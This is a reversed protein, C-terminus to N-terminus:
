RAGRLRRSVWELLLSAVVVAFLISTVRSADRSPQSARDLPTAPGLADYLSALPVEDTEVTALRPALPTYAVSAVVRSWWDRHARAAEDGGSMRWRWTEDYGVQVVRGAEVRRAAAVTAEDRIELAVADARLSAVAFAGLGTRPNDSAVAGAVGAVRRGVGGPAISALAAGRVANGALVVGGGSRAYRAIAGGATSAASDLAVVASYRLTDIAGLEGQTVDVNPAVRLRAAVHWGSEELAAITFKAEWGAEALVLVPRLTASDTPATVAVFNSGRAHVVGSVAGLEVEAAGGAPLSDILGAADSLVVPERAGSAFRVRTAGYPDAAPEAVVASPAFPRRPSWRIRTGAKGIARAWDRTQPDPMGEFVVHGSAPPTSTWRALFADLNGQAVAVALPVPPRMARSLLAALAAVAIGRLLVEVARRARDARSRM